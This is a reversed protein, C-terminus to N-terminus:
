RGLVIRMQRYQLLLRGSPSWIEGDEDVYGYASAVSRLVVFLPLSADEPPLPLPTRYHITMDVGAVGPPDSWRQFAAPVWLDAITALLFEDVPTSERPCVWGAREAPGGGHEFSGIRPYMAFRDHAALGVKPEVPEEGPRVPEVDPMSTELFEHGSKRLAFSALATAALKGGSWLRASANTMVRGQREVSVEARFNGDVFPRLFHTSLTLPQRAPEDLACCIAKLTLAQAYGGILSGLAWWTRDCQREFVGAAIRELGLHECLSKSM